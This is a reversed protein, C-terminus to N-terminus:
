SLLEDLKRGAEQASSLDSASDVIPENGPRSASNGDQLSALWAEFDTRLIYRRGGRKMSVLKQGRIGTLIWRWVTSVHVTEDKALEAPTRGFNATM